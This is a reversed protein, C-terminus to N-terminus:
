SFEVRPVRSAQRAEDDASARAVGIIFGFAVFSAMMSTGGYSNFPLALGKTPLCGTAMGINFAAEFSLLVTMGLALFRGFRDRAHYAVYVGAWLLVMFLAVIVTDALGFEEGAIAFIFDTNAEPLYQKKQISNGLGVGAPGGIVFAEISQNRHYATEQASEVGRLGDAFAIVRSRRHADSAIFVSLAVLAVAFGAALHRWRVGAALFITGCSVLIVVTAGVDPSAFVPAIFLSLLAGPVLAGRAFTSSRPGVRDFWAASAIIAALRSFESPQLSLTGLRIWRHSGNVEPFLFVACSLAIAVVSVAAALWRNRWVGYDVHVVVLALVLGICVAIGQTTVFPLAGGPFSSSASYVLVLGAALLSALDGWLIAIVRRM